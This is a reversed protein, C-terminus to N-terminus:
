RVPVPAEAGATERVGATEPDTGSVAAAGRRHRLTVEAVRRGLDRATRLDTEPPVLEAPQDADAQAMAGLWGGLRNLDEISSYSHNWGALRALGVWIMGHQAAFVALDTLTNLKDGSMSGSCTFGAAIKDRWRMGDQMLRASTEAFARFVASSGGMYTPSGFVIADAAALAAWLAEDPADVPLAEVRAGAVAAAGEAVAAAQRATHGFGSHYAVVVSVETSNM